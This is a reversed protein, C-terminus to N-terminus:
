LSAPVPGDAAQRGELVLRLKGALADLTFPRGIMEVGADLVGADELGLSTQWRPHPPLCGQLPARFGSGVAQLQLRRGAAAPIGRIANHDLRM